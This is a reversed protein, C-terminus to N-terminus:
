NNLDRIIMGMDLLPISEPCDDIWIDADWKVRKQAHSCFIVDIGLLKATEVIGGSLDTRHRATVIKVEHGHEKLLAIVKVWLPRDSTFTGDWDIALKM